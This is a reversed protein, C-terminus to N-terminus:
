NNIAIKQTSVFGVAFTKLIYIGNPINGTNLKLKEGAYIAIPSIITKGNLDCLVATANESSEVNIFEGAPNPYASNIFRNSIGVDAIGTFSCNILKVNCLYGHLYGQVNYLDSFFM